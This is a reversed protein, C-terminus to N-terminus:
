RQMQVSAQINPHIPPHCKHLVFVPCFVLCAFVIPLLHLEDDSMHVKVAGLVKHTCNHSVGQLGTPWGVALGVPLTLIPGGLDQQWPARAVQCACGRHCWGELFWSHTGAELRHWLVQARM